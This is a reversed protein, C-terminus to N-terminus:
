EQAVDNLNLDVPPKTTLDNEIIDSYPRKVYSTDVDTKIDKHSGSGWGSYKGM